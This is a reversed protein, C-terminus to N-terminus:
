IFAGLLACCVGVPIGKIFEGLIGGIAFMPVFAAITTFTSVVVPWFVERAGLAAADMPPMGEEIHRYVNETVIIADDVIMGLVILFAFLSVMNITYDFYYLLIIAFLFSVPIGFATIAAVRFNLLFYFAVLVLLLVIFVSSKVLNLRTKVYVSMDTHYGANISDPLEKSLQDALTRIKESIQITSADATKTVTLNISPKGNFRAYTEPEEFRRVVKAVDGLTM